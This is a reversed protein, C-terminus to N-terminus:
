SSQEENELDLSLQGINPFYELANIVHIATLFYALAQLYSLYRSTVEGGREARLGSAINEPKAKHIHPLFHPHPTESNDVFEGHPGNCRLLCISGRVEKPVYDLGISFNEPFDENVRLYVYFERDGKESILPMNNRRSGRELWMEKKPPEAILKPCTILDDIEDQTYQKM